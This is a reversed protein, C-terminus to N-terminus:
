TWRLPVKQSPNVQKFEKLDAREGLYLTKVKQRLPVLSKEDKRRWEMSQQNIQPDTLM